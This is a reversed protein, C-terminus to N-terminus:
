PALRALLEDFISPDSLWGLFTTKTGDLEPAVTSLELTDLDFVIFDEDENRGMLLHGDPSWTGVDCLREDPGYIIEEDPLGLIVCLDTNEFELSMWDDAPSISFFPPEKRDLLSLRTAVGSVIHYTRSRSPDYIVFLPDPSNADDPLLHIEDVVLGGQIPTQGIIALAVEEGESVLVRLLERVQAQDIDVQLLSKVREGSSMRSSSEYFISTSDKSWQLSLEPPVYDSTLKRATDPSELDIVWTGYTQLDGQYSIHRGSPSWTAGQGVSTGAAKSGIATVEDAGRQVYWLQYLDADALGLAPMRLTFAFGSGDPAWDFHWFVDGANEPLTNGGPEPPEVKPMRSPVTPITWKYDELITTTFVDGTLLDIQHIYNPLGGLAPQLTVLITKDPSLEMWRSPLGVPLPEYLDVLSPDIRPEEQKYLSIEPPLTYIPIAKGLSHDYLYITQETQTTM